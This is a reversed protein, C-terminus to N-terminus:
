EALVAIDEYANTIKYSPGIIKEDALPINLEDFANCMCTLDKQAVNENNSSVLFFDDAYHVLPKLGYNNQLPWCIFDVFQNFIRPSSRLGFPLMTDLFYCGEWFYGLLKWDQTRVPLLRFAHKIDVKSLHCSQGAARVLAMEEDFHTYKVSFIRRPFANM